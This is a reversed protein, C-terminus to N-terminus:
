KTASLIANYTTLAIGLVIFIIIGVNSFAIKYANAKKIMDRDDNLKFKKLNVFFLVIGTIAITILAM